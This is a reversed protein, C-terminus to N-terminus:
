YTRIPLILQLLNDNKPNKLIIPKVDGNFMLSIEESEMARLADLMYVNIDEDLRGFRDELESKVELLKEVSDITNIKKHIEIKLEENNNKKINLTEEVYGIEPINSSIIVQDNKTEFRITNKDNESTLLSARDIANFFDKLNVDIILSFDQPILKSTDPYEGNILRSLMEISDFKFIIKNNFIHLEIQEDEEKFMRILENLNKTPIIINYKNMLNNELTIEKKALRYSDTATCELKNDYFKFNVGTLVPRSEQTSTAFITQNIINKFVKKDIKIPEESNELELDPFENSDNCNLTFSSTTTYISLKSDILEEINILQGSLKRVIEHFLRGSVVIDGLEKIEEIDKAPIFSKIAIENDTSMLYLGKDSLSLKICNLIPIINKGSIGKIVNNLHENLINQRITIKM